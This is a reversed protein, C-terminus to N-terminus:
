GLRRPFGEFAYEVADIDDNLRDLPALLLQEDSIHIRRHDGDFADVLEGIIGPDLRLDRRDGFRRHAALEIELAREIRPHRQQFPEVLGHDLAAERFADREHRARHRQHLRHARTARGRDEHRTTECAEGLRDGLPDAKVARDGVPELQAGITPDSV